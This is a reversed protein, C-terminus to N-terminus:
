SRMAGVTVAILRARAVMSRIDKLSDSEFVRLCWKEREMWLM